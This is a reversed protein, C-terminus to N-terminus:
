RRVEGYRRRRWGRRRPKLRFVLLFFNLPL